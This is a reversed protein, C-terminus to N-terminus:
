VRDLKEAGNLPNEASTGDSAGNGLADVANAGGAAATCFEGAVGVGGDRNCSGNPTSGYLLFQQQVM